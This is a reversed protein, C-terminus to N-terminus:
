DRIVGNAVTYQDARAKYSLGKRTAWPTIEIHLPILAQDDLAMKSGQQLLAERKANDVTGLAQEIIADLQPNSYRGKNTGGFGKDRIPTAVLSRLPDSMEGTGAGWGALYASYKFEDRNKFFVTATTADVKTKVGIRTWQSAVAQAVEADNIYRNNPTGLTISFGNPYGADALLKKAADPNYAEPKADKRTGFMPSPLFDGTPQGLGEMIRSAIAERNIAMSLAKRVRVDKLPNKDGADPIGVTTPTSFSDLHIYILRNSVAQSIKVNPNERLKKLDAPPPNEIMDVDGSLLAAVRAADNSMPRYIVREWKPKDGWYDKNGALVIRNGRTWEVFKYPGTGILGEGKGLAETTMGEAVDAKAAKASMIAVRSVDTPLLPAPAKTVFQVTFDDIVKVESFSRTFLTFPSPSNPVKAPRAMSFVVDAATFPSGDHFKVGKRLKFEWVTDSVAKWSEALGPTLKQTEDQLILTDFITFALQNNPGLNHYHPDMASPETSIGIKLEQARAQNQAVLLPAALVGASLLAAATLTKWRM